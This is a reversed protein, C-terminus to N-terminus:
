GRGRAARHWRRMVCVQVTPEDIQGNWMARWAARAMAPKKARLGNTKM